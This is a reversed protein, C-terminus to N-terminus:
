QCLARKNEKVSQKIEKELPKTLIFPDIGRTQTRLEGLM